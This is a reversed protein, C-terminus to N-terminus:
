ETVKFDKLVPAITDLAFIAAPYEDLSIAEIIYPQLFDDLPKTLISSADMLQRVTLIELLRKGRYNPMSMQLTHAYEHILSYGQYNFTEDGFVSFDFTKDRYYMEKVEVPLSLFRKTKEKIQIQDWDFVSSSFVISKYFKIEPDSMIVFIGDLEKYPDHDILFKEAHLKDYLEKAIPSLAHHREISQIIAVIRTSEKSSPSVPKVGQVQKYVLRKNYLEVFRNIFKYMSDIFDPGLSTNINTYPGFTKRFEEDFAEKVVSHDSTNDLDKIKDFFYFALEYLTALYLIKLTNEKTTEKLVLDYLHGEELNEESITKKIEEVSSNTYANKFFNEVLQRLNPFTKVPEMLINLWQTSAVFSPNYDSPDIKSEVLISGDQSFYKKSILKKKKNYVYSIRQGTPLKIEKVLKKDQSYSITLKHDQKKQKALVQGEFIIISLIVLFSFFISVYISKSNRM